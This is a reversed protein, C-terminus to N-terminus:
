ESDATEDNNNQPPSSSGHIEDEHIEFLQTFEAIVMDVAKLEGVLVPHITQLEPTELQQKLTDRRTNMRALFELARGRRFTKAGGREKRRHGGRGRRFEERNSDEFGTPKTGEPEKM